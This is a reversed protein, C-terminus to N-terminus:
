FSVLLAGSIWALRGGNKHGGAQAVIANESSIGKQHKTLYILLFLSLFLVFIEKMRRKGALMIHKSILCFARRSLSRM